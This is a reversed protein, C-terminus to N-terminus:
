HHPGTMLGTGLASRWRGNKEPDSGQAPIMFCMTRGHSPSLSNYRSLQKHGASLKNPPNASTTIFTTIAGCWTIVVPNGGKQSWPYKETRTLAKLPLHLAALHRVVRHSYLEPGRGVEALAMMKSSTSSSLTYLFQPFSSWFSLVANLFLIWLQSMLLAHAKIFNLIQHQYHPFLVKSPGIDGTNAIPYIPSICGWLATKKRPQGKKLYRFRDRPHPQWVPHPPAWPLRCLARFTEHLFFVHNALTGKTLLGM